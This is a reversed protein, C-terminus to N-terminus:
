SIKKIIGRIQKETLDGTQYIFNDYGCFKCKIELVYYSDSHIILEMGAITKLNKIDDPFLVYQCVKCRNSQIM